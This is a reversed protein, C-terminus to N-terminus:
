RGIASVAEAASPGLAEIALWVEILVVATAKGKVEPFGVFCKVDRNGHRVTVWELHRPSKDLRAKAWDQAHVPLAAALALLLALRKM